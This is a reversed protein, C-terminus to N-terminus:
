IKRIIVKAAPL